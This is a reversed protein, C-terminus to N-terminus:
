DGSLWIWVLPGSQGREWVPMEDGVGDGPALCGGSGGRM